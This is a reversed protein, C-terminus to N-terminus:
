SAPFRGDESTKLDKSSTASAVRKDCQQAANSPAQADTPANEKFSEDNGTGAMEVSMKNSAEFRAPPATENSQEMTRMATKSPSFLQKSIPIVGPLASQSLEKEHKLYTERSHSEDRLLTEIADTVITHTAREVAGDVLAKTSATAFADTRRSDGPTMMMAEYEEECSLNLKETTIALALSRVADSGRRSVSSRRRTASHPVEASDHSRSQSIVTSTDLHTQDPQPIFPPQSFPEVSSISLRHKQPGCLDDSDKLHSPSLRRKTATSSGSTDGDSSYNSTAISDLPARDPVTSRASHGLALENALDSPLDSKEFRPHRFVHIGSGSNNIISPNSHVDIDDFTPQRHNIRSFGWGDILELFEDFTAVQFNKQMLDQAFEKARIAFFKGDPLFTLIDNYRQDLLLTMLTDPFSSQQKIRSNRERLEDSEHVMPPTLVPPLERHDVGDGSSSTYGTTGDGASNADPLNVQHSSAEGVDRLLCSAAQILASLGSHISM